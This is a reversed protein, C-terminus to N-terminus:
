GVFFRQSTPSTAAAGATWFTSPFDSPPRQGKDELSRITRMDVLELLGEKEGAGQVPSPLFPDIYNVLPALM